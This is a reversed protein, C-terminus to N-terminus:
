PAVYINTPPASAFGAAPRILMWGPRCDRNPPLRLNVQQVGPIPGPAPGAYEFVVPASLGCSNNVGGVALPQASTSSIPGTGFVSVASDWKAPNSRNNVTGDQNVAAILGRGGGDLTLLGFDGVTRNV